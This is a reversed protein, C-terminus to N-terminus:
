FVRYEITDKEWNVYAEAIRETASAPYASTDFQYYYNCEYDDFGPTGKIGFKLLEEDTRLFCYWYAYRKEARPCSDIHYWKGNVKVLSWFHQTSGGERHVSVTEFGAEEMFARMAAYFTFCDGTGDNLGRIAERVWSDKDSHSVYEIHERVYIWIHFLKEIDSMNDDIIQPLLKSFKRHLAAESYKGEPTNLEELSRVVVTATAVAKNGSKDTATYTVTYTGPVKLNVGSSDIEVRPDPDRDDTVVLDARYAITDGEFLERYLPVSIVPPINDVDVTLTPALITKNGAADLLLIRVQRSGAEDTNVNDLFSATIATADSMSIIFDEPKVPTGKEVIVDRVQASPPTTDQVRITVKYTGEGCALEEPYDGPEATNMQSVDSLYYIVMGQASDKLFAAAAPVEGGAEVTVVDIVPADPKNTPVPTAPVRTRDPDVTNIVTNGPTKGRSGKNKPMTLIVIALALAIVFLLVIALKTAPSSKKPKRYYENM